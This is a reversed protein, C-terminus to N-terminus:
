GLKAWGNKLRSAVDNLSIKNQMYQQLTPQLVSGKWSDYEPVYAFNGITFNGGDKFIQTWGPSSKKAQIAANLSTKTMPVLADGLAFKVLYQDQMMFNIFRAADKKVKSQASISFTQPGSAQMSSINGSLMPLVTWNFGKEKAAIDLDPAAYSGMLLMAAKGALFNTEATGSSITLSVPDVSKDIYVMDHLRKPIELEAKNVVMSARGSSYGVFFKGGFNPSMIMTISAPKLLGATLGYSSSNTLKKALAAFGDWTLSGTPLTVGAKKFLDTNAFVVYPQDLVPVGYLRSKYSASQWEGAPISPQLNRFSSTLDSLYGQKAYTLIDASDFHIVDPATGSAFQTTLQDGLNDWDGPILKVPTNPNAKNWDAVVDNFAKVTDPMWAPTVFTIPAVARAPASALVGIALTTAGVISILKILLSQWKLKNSM